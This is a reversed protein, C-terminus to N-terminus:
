PDTSPADVPEAAPEYGHCARVPLMPYRPFTPDVDSRECRLFRSGRRSVVLRGHRCASCLGAVITSSRTSPDM